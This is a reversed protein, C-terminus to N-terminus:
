ARRQPLEIVNEAPGKLILAILGALKELADRKEDLYSHRDYVGEVGKIVHGLVRESIDPRVGARQMLTKSTRRIDRLQWKTVKSVEDLHRKAKSFGSFPTEGDTTFLLAKYRPLGALIASAENTLPVVHGDMKTGTREQSMEWLDGKIEARTMGTCGTPRQATLFMFRVFPGFVPPETESTAAWIRRIENDTLVRTRARARSKTRGMGRVIPSRFDDDQAAWWTFLRRVWALARDAMVPGNNDELGDIFTSIESRKISAIPRGKWEPIAYRDLIRKVEKSTKPAWARSKKMRALFREAIKEFTTTTEAQKARKEAEKAAAPDNGKAIEGRAIAAATRADALKLSPYRGFTLWRQRGNIRYKAFYTITAGQRRVGLGPCDLDWLIAGDALKGIIPGTLKKSVM